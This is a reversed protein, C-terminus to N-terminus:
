RKLDAQMYCEKRVKRLILTAIMMSENRTAEARARLKWPTDAAGWLVNLVSGKDKRVVSVKLKRIWDWRQIETRTLLSWLVLLSNNWCSNRGESQDRM